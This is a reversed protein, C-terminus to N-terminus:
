VKAIAIIAAAPSAERQAQERCQEYLAQHIRDLTGDYTWLDFYDYITSKRRCTKRSRAGSVGPRCIVRQGVLLLIPFGRTSSNANSVDTSVPLRLTLLTTM